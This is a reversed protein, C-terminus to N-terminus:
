SRNPEQGLSPQHQLHHSPESSARAPLRVGGGGGDRARGQGEGRRTGNADMCWIRHQKDEADRGQSIRLGGADAVGRVKVDNCTCRWIMGYTGALSVRKGRLEVSGATSWLSFLTNYSRLMDPSRAAAQATAAWGMGAAYSCGADPKQQRMKSAVSLIQTLKVSARERRAKLEFRQKITRCSKPEEMLRKSRCAM